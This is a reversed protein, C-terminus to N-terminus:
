GAFAVYARPGIADFRDLRGLAPGSLFATGNKPVGVVTQMAIGRLM